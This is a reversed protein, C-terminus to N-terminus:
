QPMLIVLPRSPLALSRDGREEQCKDSIQRLLRKFYFIFFSSSSFFLKKKILAAFAPAYLLLLKWPFPPLLRASPSIFALCSVCADQM